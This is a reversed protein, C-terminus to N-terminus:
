STTAGRTRTAPPRPSARRRRDGIRLRCGSRTTRTEPRRAPGPSATAQSRLIDRDTSTAALFRDADSGARQATGSPSRRISTTPSRRSRAPETRRWGAVAQAFQDEAQVPCGRHSSAARRGSPHLGAIWTPRTRDAQRFRTRSHGDERGRPRCSSSTRRRRARSAGSIYFVQGDVSWSATRLDGLGAAVGHLDSGDNRVALVAAVDHPLCKVYAIRSGDPSWSPTEEDVNQALRRGGSGNAGITWLAYRDDSDRLCVRPAALGPGPRLRRTGRAKRIGLRRRTGGAAPIVYLKNEDIFAITTGDPSWSPMMGSEGIQTSTGDVTDLRGAGQRTTPASSSAELGLVVGGAFGLLSRIARRGSGDVDMVTM